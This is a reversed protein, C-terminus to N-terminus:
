RSRALDARDNQLRPSRIATNTCSRARLKWRGRMSRISRRFGCAAMRNDVPYFKDGEKLKLRALLEKPLIVGVSNGIKRIQLATDELKYDRAAESM